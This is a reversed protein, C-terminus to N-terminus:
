RSKLKLECLQKSFENLLKARQEEAMSSLAQQFMRDVKISDIVKELATKVSLNASKYASEALSILTSREKFDPLVFLAKAMESLIENKGQADAKMWASVIQADSARAVFSFTAAHRIESNGEYMQQELFQYAQSSLKPLRKFAYILSSAATSNRSTSFKAILLRELEHFLAPSPPAIEFISDIDRFLLPEYLPNSESRTEIRHKFIPLAEAIKSNAVAEALNLIRYADNETIKNQKDIETLIPNVNYRGRNAKVLDEKALILESVSSDDRLIRQLVQSLEPTASAQSSLLVFFTFASGFITM